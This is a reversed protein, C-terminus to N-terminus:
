ARLWPPKRMARFGWIRRPAGESGSLRRVTLVHFICMRKIQSYEFKKAIISKAVFVNFGDSNLESPRFIAFIDQPLMGGSVRPQVRLM